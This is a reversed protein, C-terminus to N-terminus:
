KVEKSTSADDLDRIASMIEAVLQEDPAYADPNFFGILQRGRHDTPRPLGSARDPTSEM